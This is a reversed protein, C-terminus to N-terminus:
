DVTGGASVRAAARARLAAREEDSVFAMALANEQARKTHQPSLRAQLAAIEYEYPLDIGSIGPDDTNLNAILGANLFQRMPHRQYNPVASTQVNSTLNAEVSIGRGIMWPVLAPDELARVAHGIRTAGLLEVADRISQPGVMEGAHAILRWGADRGRRFHEAFLAAPMAAEDGAIDLAVFGDRHELLADLEQFAIAPGYTRSLIGIAGVPLDFDRRGAALGDLVAEVVGEPVLGHREAMFWPSFRLELYDIGERKADEVNEYAIRRCADFDVLIERMWRFRAIFAMVDPECGQVCVHPRLTDVDTGPLALGHRAGVDLITELRVNGDLHRHLDILPLSRDIM